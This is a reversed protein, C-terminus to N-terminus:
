ERGLRTIPTGVGGRARRQRDVGDAKIIVRLQWIMDDPEEPLGYEFGVVDGNRELTVFGTGDDSFPDESNRNAKAKWGWREAEARV